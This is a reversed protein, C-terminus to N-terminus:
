GLSDARQGLERSQTFPTVAGRVSPLGATGAFWVAARRIPVQPSRFLLVSQKLFWLARGAEQQLQLLPAAAGAAGGRGSGVRGPGARIRSWERDLGRGVYGRWVGGM